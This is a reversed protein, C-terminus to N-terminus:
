LIRVLGREVLQVVLDLVDQRCRERPAGYRRAAADALDSVSIPSAVLKWVFAGVNQLSHYDGTGLHLILVEHDLEASVHTDGAVVKTSLTMRTEGTNQDPM